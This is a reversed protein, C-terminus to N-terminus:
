DSIFKPLNAASFIDCYASRQGGNLAAIKHRKEFSDKDINLTVIGTPREFDAPTYDRYLESLIEKSVLTPYGGGTVSGSLASYACNSLSGQWSLLTHCSTYTVNWADNNLTNDSLNAVTGSKSATDFPLPALFKTTGSKSTEKLIDTLLYADEQRLVKKYSSNKQYILNGGSDYIAKIFGIKKYKGGNALMVYGSALEVPNLGDTLGGLAIALGDNKSLRIDMEEAFAKAKEIGLSDLIEAAVANSSQKVANRVTTWGVYKNKYNAPSYGDFDKRVDNVPSSPYILKERFAPAYVFLPKAISGPQRKLSYVGLIYSNIYFANIGGDFNDALLSMADPIKGNKNKLLHREDNVADYLIKQKEGDYYTHIKYESSLLEKGSIGTIKSAEDLVAEMYSANITGSQKKDSVTLKDLSASAAAAVGVYGNEQMLKLVLNRRKHSNEPNKLPSYLSPNKIVAALTACEAITLGSLEKDFFIKSANKIGYISNGFYLGNLYAEMIEEKSYKKDLEVALKMEKIKRALTKEGSLHSNKVLQQNITSAGEKFSASLLDNKAAGLIRIVDIGNHKFFRKDEVAVFANVLNRPINPYPVYSIDNKNKLPNDNHDFIQLNNVTGASSIKSGDIKIGHTIDFFVATASFCFFATLIYVTLMIKKFFKNKSKVM